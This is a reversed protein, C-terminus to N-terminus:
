ALCTFMSQLINAVSCCFFRWRIEHQLTVTLSTASFGLTTSAVQCQSWAIRYLSKHSCSEHSVAKLCLVDPKHAFYLYTSFVPRCPFHRLSHRTYLSYLSSRRSWLPLTGRLGRQTSIHRRGSSAVASIYEETHVQRAGFPARFTPKGIEMHPLWRLEPRQSCCVVLVLITKAIQCIYSSAMRIINPVLYSSKFQLMKVDAFASYLFEAKDSAASLCAGYNSQSAEHNWLEHCESCAM